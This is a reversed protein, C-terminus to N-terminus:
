SYVTLMLDTRNAGVVLEGAIKFRGSNVLFNAVIPIPASNFGVGLADIYTISLTGYRAPAQGRAKIQVASGPFGDYPKGPAVITDVIMLDDLDNTAGGGGVVKLLKKIRTSGGDDIIVPDPM